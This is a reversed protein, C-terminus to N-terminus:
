NARETSVPLTLGCHTQCEKNLYIELDFRSSLLKNVLGRLAYPHLNEPESVADPVRARIDYRPNDLWEGAGEVQWPRVGYAIAVLQRLSTNRITVESGTASIRVDDGTVGAAPGVEVDAEWLARTNTALLAHRHLADDMAGAAFPIAAVALTCTSLLFAKTFGLALPPRSGLINRIRTTLDGAIAAMAHREHSTACHRCVALIGAAYEGPDHGRDLVAEDCAREREEMLQRSIFWVLPHFWFLAEVLSHLHAKLNDHRAIHEREHAMVADLQSPSLRGLLASPLLVVPNIVRAVAPEVDADTVCADPLSGPAPRAARSIRDAAYWNRLWRVGLGLAVLAWAAFMAPLLLSPDKSPAVSLSLSPSIMPAAAQVATGFLSAQQVEVPTVLGAAAGALYLASFPVLFKLSAMMWLGHRVAASNSRLALTISWIAAGFLTSQWLHDILARIM